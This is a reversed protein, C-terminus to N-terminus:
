RVAQRRKGEDASSGERDNRGSTDATSSCFCCSTKCACTDWLHRCHEVVTCVVAYATFCGWSSSVIPPPHKWIPASPGSSTWDMEDSSSDVDMVNVYHEFGEMMDVRRSKRVKM